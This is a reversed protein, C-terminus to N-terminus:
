PEVTVTSQGTGSCHASNVSLTVTFTGTNDYLYGPHQESSTGGDGFDWTWFVISDNASTTSLDSFFATDGECLNQVTFDVVPSQYVRIIENDTRSCGNLSTATLQTVYSGPSAYNIEPPDQGIHTFPTVDFTWEWSTANTTTQ